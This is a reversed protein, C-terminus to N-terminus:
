NRWAFEICFVKFWPSANGGLDTEIV